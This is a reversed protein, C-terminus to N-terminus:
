SKPKKRKPPTPITIDHVWVRARKARKRGILPLSVWYVIEMLPHSVTNHIFWNKIWGM